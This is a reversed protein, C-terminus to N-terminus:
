HGGKKPRYRQAAKKVSAYTVRGLGAARFLANFADPKSLLGRKGIPGVHSSAEIARALTDRHKVLRDRVPRDLSYNRIMDDALVNWRENSSPLLHKWPGRANDALAQVGQVLSICLFTDKRGGMFRTQVRSYALTVEEIQERLEARREASTQPDDLEDGWEAIRRAISRATMAVQEPRREFLARIAHFRLSDLALETGQLLQAVESWTGGERARQAADRSMGAVHALDRELADDSSVPRAVSAAKPKARAKPKRKAAVRRDYVAANM